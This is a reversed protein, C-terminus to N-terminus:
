AKDSYVIDAINACIEYYASLCYVMFFSPLKQGQEDTTQKHKFSSWIKKKRSGQHDKEVNLRGNISSNFEEDQLNAMDLLWVSENWVIFRNGKILKLTAVKESIWNKLVFLLMKDLGSM